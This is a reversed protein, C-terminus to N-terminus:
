NCHWWSPISSYLSEVHAGGAFTEYADLIRDLRFRHTNLLKPDIKCSQLVMLLMPTSVTDVLRTAIGSTETGCVNWIFIWRREVRRHGTRSRVLSPPKSRRQKTTISPLPKGRSRDANRVISPLIELARLTPYPEVTSLTILRTASPVTTASKLGSDEILFHHM